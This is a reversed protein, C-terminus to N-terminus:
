PITFTTIKYLRQNQIHWLYVFEKMMFFIKIYVFINGKKWSKGKYMIYNLKKQFYADLNKIVAKTNKLHRTKDKIVSGQLLLKIIDRIGEQLIFVFGFILGLVM